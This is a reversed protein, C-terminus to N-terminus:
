IAQGKELIKDILERERLGQSDGGSFNLLGSSYSEGFTTVLNITQGVGLLFQQDDLSALPHIFTSWLLGKAVAYRADLTSDFNAQMIRYLEDKSLKESELIPIIVRMRNHSEDTLVTLTLSSVEFQWHGNGGKFDPDLNKIIAELRKNDMATNEAVSPEKAFVFSSFFLVIYVIFSRRNLM